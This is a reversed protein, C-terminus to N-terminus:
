PTKPVNRTSKRFVGIRVARMFSDVEAPTLIDSVPGEGQCQRPLLPNFTCDELGLKLM